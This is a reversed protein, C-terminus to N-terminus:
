SQLSQRTRQYAQSLYDDLASEAIRYRQGVKLARLEGRKILRYITMDSVGLLSAVEQITWIRGTMAGRGRDLFDGVASITLRYQEGIQYYAMRRDQLHEYVTKVSLRLSAAVEEPTLFDSV